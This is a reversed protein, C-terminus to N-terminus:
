RTGEPSDEHFTFVEVCEENMAFKFYMRRTFHASDWVCEYLTQGEALGAYSEDERQRMYQITIEGIARRLAVTIGVEGFVGLAECDARLRDLQAPECVWGDGRALAKKAASLVAELVDGDHKKATPRWKSPRFM